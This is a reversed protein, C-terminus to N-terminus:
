LLGLERARQVADARNHVGLKGYIHKIHTRVTHWSIVLEKAIEPTSLHTSLLRLVEKERDSLPEVLSEQVPERHVMQTPAFTTERTDPGRQETKGDLATLLKVAYEVAIGTRAAERLLEGMPTGEDIFTRMLGEPEALTLARALATLAQEKDGKEQLALAQLLLMEIVQQGAGATEAVKLLKDLLALARDPMGQATLVRALVSYEWTYQFGPEDDPSLGSQRAWHMAAARNGQALWLRAQHAAGYNGFWSSFVGAKQKGKQIADLAGQVDGTAQLVRALGIYAFAM